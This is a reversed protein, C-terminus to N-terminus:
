SRWELRTVRDCSATGSRRATTRGTFAYAQLTYNDFGGSSSAFAARADQGQNTHWILHGTPPTGTKTIWTSYTHQWRDGLPKQWAPAGGAPAYLSTYFRAFSIGIGYPVRPAVDPPLQYRLGGLLPSVMGTSTCSLPSECVGSTLGPYCGEDALNDADDDLGNGCVEAAEAISGLLFMSLIIAKTITRM